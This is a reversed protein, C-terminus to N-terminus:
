ENGRASADTNESERQAVIQVIDGTTPVGTTPVGNEGSCTAALTYEGESGAFGEVVITYEGPTLEVEIASQIGCSDDNGAIEVSTADLHDGTYLRLLTDYSSGECTSFTWQQTEAVTVRYFHEGSPEGVNNVAGVTNGTATDGCGMAPVGTTPLGTTPVGTRGSGSGSGSGGSSDDDSGSGSGDDPYPQNRRERDSVAPDTPEPRNTLAVRQSHGMGMARLKHHRSHAGFDGDEARVAATAAFILAIAAAAFSRATVPM